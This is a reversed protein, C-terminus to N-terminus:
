KGDRYSRLAAQRKAFERAELVANCNSVVVSPLAAVPVKSAKWQNCTIQMPSMEAPNAEYYKADRLPMDAPPTSTGCGSLVVALVSVSAIRHVTM